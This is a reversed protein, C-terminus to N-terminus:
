WKDGDHRGKLFALLYNSAQMIDYSDWNTLGKIIFEVAAAFDTM